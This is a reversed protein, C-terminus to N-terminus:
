IRHFIWDNTLCKASKSSRLWWITRQPNRHVLWDAVHVATLTTFTRDQGASPEHHLRVADVLSGPLGWLGLLYGGVEAHTSGQVERELQEIKERLGANDDSSRTPASEPKEPIM